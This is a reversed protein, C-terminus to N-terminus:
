YFSFYKLEQSDGVKLNQYNWIESIKPGVGGRIIFNLKFMLFMEKM